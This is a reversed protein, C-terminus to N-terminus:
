RTHLAAARRKAGLSFGLAHAIEERTGKLTRKRVRKGRLKAPVIVRRGWMKELSKAIATLNGSIVLTPQRVPTHPRGSGSTVIDKGDAGPCTVSWVCPQGAGCECSYSCHEADYDINTAGCKVRAM